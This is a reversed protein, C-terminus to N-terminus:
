ETGRYAALLLDTDAETVPSHCCCCRRNLLEHAAEEAEFKARGERFKRELEAKEEARTM